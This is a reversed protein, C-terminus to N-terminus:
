ELERELERDISWPFFTCCAKFAATMAPAVSASRLRFSGPPQLPSFPLRTRVAAILAPPILSNTFLSGSLFPVRWVTSATRPPSTPFLIRLPGRSLDRDRDRERDRERERARDRPRSLPLVASFPRAVPPTAAAAPFARRSRTRDLDRPRLDELLELSLRLGGRCLFLLLLTLSYM